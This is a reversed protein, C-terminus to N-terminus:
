SCPNNKKVSFKSHNIFTELLKTVLYLPSDRRTGDTKHMWIRTHELRGPQLFCLVQDVGAEQYKKMVEIIPDPNGM